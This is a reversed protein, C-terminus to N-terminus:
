GELGKYTLPAVLAVVKAWRTFINYNRDSSSEHCSRDRAHELTWDIVLAYDSGPDSYHAASNSCYRQHM